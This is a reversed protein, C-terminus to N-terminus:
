FKLLMKELTGPTLSLLAIPAGTNINLMTATKLSKGLMATNEPTQACPGHHLLSLQIEKNCAAKLMECENPYQFTFHEHCIITSTEQAVVMM